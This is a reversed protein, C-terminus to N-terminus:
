TNYHINRNFYEIHIEEKSILSTIKTAHWASPYEIDKEVYYNTMYDKKVEMATPIGMWFKYSPYEVKGLVPKKFDTRLFGIEPYQFSSPLTYNNYRSIAKKNFVYEIGEPTIFTFGKLQDRVKDVVIEFDQYPVLLIEENPQIYFKGSYGGFDYYYEDPELDLQVTNYVPYPNSDDTNFLDGINEMADLFSFAKPNFFEFDTRKRTSNKRNFLQLKEKKSLSNFDNIDLADLGLDAMRAEDKLYDYGIGEKNIVVPSPVDIVKVGARFNLAITLNLKSFLPTTIKIQTNIYNFAPAAWYMQIDVKVPGKGLQKNFLNHKNLVKKALKAVNTNDLWNAVQQGTTMDALLADKAKEVEDETGAGFCGATININLIDELITRLIKCLIRKMWGPTKDGLDIGIDIGTFESVPKLGRKYGYAYAQLNDKFEDPLGNVVRTIKGGNSIDMNSGLLTEQNDIKLGGPTGNVSIPVSVDKSSVDCIPLNLYGTGNYLNVGSQVANITSTSSPSPMMSGSAAQGLGEIEGLFWNPDGGNEMLATTIMESVKDEMKHIFDGGGANGSGGGIDTVLGDWPSVGSCDAPDLDFADAIISQLDVNSLALSLSDALTNVSGISDELQTISITTGDNDNVENIIDTVETSSIDNANEFADQLLVISQQASDMQPSCLVDFCEMLEELSMDGYTASLVDIMNDASTSSILTDTIPDNISIGLISDIGDSSNQFDTMTFITSGRNGCASPTNFMEDTIPPTILHDCDPVVQASAFPQFIFFTLLPIIIYQIVTKM